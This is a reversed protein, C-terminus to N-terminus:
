PRFSDDAIVWVRLWEDFQDIAADRKAGREAEAVAEIHRAMSLPPGHCVLGNIKLFVDAAAFGARKNGEVFVQAQSIATALIVAQRVLDVGEYLAANRCRNVASELADLDRVLAPPDGLRFLIVDHLM